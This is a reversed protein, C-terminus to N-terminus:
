TTPRSDKSKISQATIPSLGGAEGGQGHTTKHWHFPKRMLEILARWAAFSVMLHTIPALLIYPALHLARRRRLAILAPIVEVLVAIVLAFVLMTDAATLLTSGAGLPMPNALRIAVGAMFIPYLLAGIVVALGTSAIIMARFLGLTEIMQGPRRAHVIMTQLWGKMWRTRQNMWTAISNPAEEWTTSRLDEVRWGFRALRLGLDADETVNWADWAGIRKLVDARFHNSSGGLPVAWEARGMGAKVCDFLTAYDIAFRRTLFGDRVNTIALRGQLCAVNGPLANFLAAARLLQDPEPQDEADYVVVLDGSAFPLAANLARPKTRPEGAPVPFVLMWAALPAARLANLTEEDDEEVILFVEIRDHPYLLDLLHRILGEVINAERYLPVLLTYKPLRATEMPPAPLPPSTSELTATLASIGALIFIPSLLLPPLVVAHLPLLVAFVIFGLALAPGLLKLLTSLTAKSGEVARHRASHAAPLRFAAKRVISQGDAEILRDLLAQRTTLIVAPRRGEERQRILAAALAGNPAIVQVSGGDQRQAGYCRLAFAEESRVPRSPLPPVGEFALGLHEALASVFTEEKLTGDGIALDFANTGLIKARGCIQRWRRFELGCRIALPWFPDPFEDGCHHHAQFPERTPM